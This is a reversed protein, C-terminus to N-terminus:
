HSGAAMVGPSHHIPAKAHREGGLGGASGSMRSERDFRRHSRLLDGVRAANIPKSIFHGQAQQCTQELWDYQQQTEVGEATIAMGLTEGLNIVTRIIAESEDKIHLGQVFSKDIKLKDFKFKHLYGLSSYGTGFDDLAITIGLERINALMAINDGSDNLLASETIELELRHPALGTDELAEKITDMLSHNFFQRTSINVAVSIDDPWNVAERCATRMVWAGIPVILGTEEILPIFTDPPMLGREPHNWRLLAECSSVAGTKFDVLPQYYLEFENNELATALDQKMGNREVLLTEMARRFFVCGGRGNNKVEYLAIDANRFLIDADLKGSQTLAIGISAGVRLLDDGVQVPKSLSAGIDEALAAAQAENMGDLVIAFEDGGLRAVVSGEASATLRAAVVRLVEDGIPHGKTDNIEKFLDLDLLLIGVQRGSAIVADLARHFSVRNSLGTLTDRLALHEIELRAKRRGSIDRFFISMGEESPFARIDLWMEGSGLRDEYEAVRQDLLATELIVRSPFRGGDVTIDWLTTGFALKPGVGLIRAAQTNFYTVKWDRDLVIVSDSTTELVSNLQQRGATAEDRLIELKTIISHERLGAAGAFTAGVVAALSIYFMDEGFAGSAVASGAFIAIAAGPLSAIALKNRVRRRVESAPAVEEKIHLHEACAWISLGISAVWLFETLGGQIWGGDLREKAYFIDAVAEVCAAAVLLKLPLARAGHNYMGIAILGFAAVSLWLAPYLFAMMTGLKTLSTTTFHDNLIILCAISIACYVMTFNYVNTKRRDRHVEGYHTVGFAMCVAMAFFTAEPINPFAPSYGIVMWHFYFLNGVLYLFNGLAFFRWASRASVAGRTAAVISLCTAMVLALVQFVCIWATRTYDDFGVIRPVFHFTAIFTIFGALGLFRRNSFREGQHTSSIM